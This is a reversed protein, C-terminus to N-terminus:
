PACTPQGTRIGMAKRWQARASEITDVRHKLRETLKTLRVLKDDTAKSLDGVESNVYYLYAMSEGFELGTIIAGAEPNGQMIKLAGLLFRLDASEPEKGMDWGTNVGEVFSKALKQFGEYAEAMAPKDKAAAIRRLAAIIPPYGFGKETLTTVANNVNWPNLSKASKMALSGAELSQDVLAMVVKRQLDKKQEEAVKAFMNFREVDGAFGLQRIANQDAALALTAGCFKTGARDAPTGQYESRRRCYYNDDDEGVLLDGPKCQARAPAPALCLAVVGLLTVVLAWRRPTM